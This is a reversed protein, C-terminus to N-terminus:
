TVSSFQTRQGAEMRRTGFATGPIYCHHLIRTLIEAGAVRKNKRGKRKQEVYSRGEQVFETYLDDNSHLVCVDATYAEHTVDQRFPTMRGGQEGRVLKTDRCCYNTMARKSKSPHATIPKTGYTHRGLHMRTEEVTRACGPARQGLIQLHRPSALRLDHAGKCERLFRNRPLPICRRSGPPSM